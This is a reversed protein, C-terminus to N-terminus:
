YGRIINGIRNPQHTIEVFKDKLLRSKVHEKSVQFHYALSDVMSYYIPFKGKQNDIIFPIRNLRHQKFLLSIANRFAHDPMLLYSAFDNAQVDFFHFESDPPNFALPNDPSFFSEYQRLKVRHLYAHGLEHALSFRMRTPHAILWNPMVIVNNTADFKGNQSEPLEEFVIKTGLLTILKDENNPTQISIFEHSNILENVIECIKPRPLYPPKLKPPNLPINHQRLMEGFTLFCNDDYVLPFCSAATEGHLISFNLDRQELENLSRPAVWQEDGQGSWVILGIGLQKSGDIVPQSFGLSTVIYRKYAYPFNTMKGRLEFYDSKDLRRNLDKCEFILVNSIENNCHPNTVEVSVDAIFSDSGFDIPYSKKQHVSYHKGVALTGDAILRKVLLFVKDEYADGKATTNM